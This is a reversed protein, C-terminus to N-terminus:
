SLGDAFWEAIGEDILEFPSLDQCQEDCFSEFIETSSTRWRLNELVLFDEDLIENWQLYLALSVNKKTQKFLFRSVFAEPDLEMIELEQATFFPMIKELYAISVKGHTTSVKGKCDTIGNDVLEKAFAPFIRDVITSVGSKLSQNLRQFEESELAIEGSDNKKKAM